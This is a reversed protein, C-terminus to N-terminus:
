AVTSRGNATATAAMATVEMRTFESSAPSGTVAVPHVNQNTIMTTCVATM